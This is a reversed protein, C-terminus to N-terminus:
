RFPILKSTFGSYVGGLFSLCYAASYGDYDREIHKRVAELGGADDLRKSIEKKYAIYVKYPDNSNLPRDAADAFKYVCVFVFAGIGTLWVIRVFKRCAFGVALGVGYPVVIEPFPPFQNKEIAEKARAFWDDDDGKKVGDCMAVGGGDSSDLSPFLFLVPILAAQIGMARVNNTTQQQQQQQSGQHHHGRRGSFGTANRMLAVGSLASSSSSTAAKRALLSFEAANRMLAVGSLASSSSPTTTSTAAKRALLSLTRSFM